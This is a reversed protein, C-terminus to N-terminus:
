VGSARHDRPPHHRVLDEVVLGIGPHPPDPRGEVLREGLRRPPHEGQHRVESLNARLPLHLDLGVAIGQFPEEHRPQPLEQPLPVHPAHEEGPKRHADHPLVAPPVKDAPGPPLPHVGPPV